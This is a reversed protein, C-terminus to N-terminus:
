WDRHVPLPPPPPTPTPTPYCVTAFQCFKTRKEAPNEHLDNKECFDVGQGQGHSSKLNNSRMPFIKKLAKWQPGIILFRTVSLTLIDIEAFISHRCRFDIYQGQRHSSKQNGSRMLFTKYLGKWHPKVIFFRAVSLTLANIKRSFFSKRSYRHGSRTRPEIKSQKVENSLDKWSSEMSTWCDFTSGRVLDPCRNKRFDNKERFM